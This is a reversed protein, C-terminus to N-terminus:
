VQYGIFEPQIHVLEALRDSPEVRQLRAALDVLELPHLSRELGDAIRMAFQASHVNRPGLTLARDGRHEITTQARGTIPRSEIGLRVQNIERLSRPNRSSLNRGRQHEVIDLPQARNVIAGAKRERKELEGDRHHEQVEGFLVDIYRDDLRAKAPPKIRGVYHRRNQAHNRRDTEIVHFIEAIRDRSDRAFLAADDLVVHRDHNARGVVFRTERQGRYSRLASARDAQNIAIKRVVRVRRRMSQIVVAKPELQAIELQPESSRKLMLISRDRNSGEFGQARLTPSDILLCDPGAQAFNVPGPAEVDYRLTRQDDEIARM